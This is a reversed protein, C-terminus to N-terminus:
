GRQLRGPAGVTGRGWVLAALAFFLPGAMMAWAMPAYDAALGILPPSWLDGFLHIAFILLAMATARLEAPVSRLTAVNVPGASLFLAIECPILLMFFTRAEGAAIAAAVLPAGLGVGLACVSLNARTAMADAANADLHDAGERGAQRRVNRDALWGGAMTGIFGGVVTLLGFTVSARGAELGYRAHLYKPAWYGFGGIAFTYACCGLVTQRYGRIRLLSRASSLLAGSAGPSSHRRVPEAILLCLLALVLGPGGAVFFAARWGQSHEVAGGVVYGLASGIPMAASFTAMWRARQEPTAIDDILTPAITSYSAEGVGVAARAAVLAMTGHVLGSALTAVSWVSVGVMMLRKRGGVGARDSLSGFIPSTAFYGILFITALSGGVFNSLQLDEQVKPLVAAMVFRDIYNLLNLGTLLALVIKPNRIIGPGIEIAGTAAGATVPAVM